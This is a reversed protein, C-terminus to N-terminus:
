LSCTSDFCKLVPCSDNSLFPQVCWQFAISPHPVPVFWCHHVMILDHWRQKIFLLEEVFDIDAFPESIRAKSLMFHSQFITNFPNNFQLFSTKHDKVGFSGSSVPMAEICLEGFVWDKRHLRLRKFRLSFTKNGIKISSSHDKLPNSNSKQQKIGIDIHLSPINTLIDFM